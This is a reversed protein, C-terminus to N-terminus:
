GGGWILTDRDRHNVCQTDYLTTDDANAQTSNQSWQQTNILREWGNPVYLINPIEVWLPYGTDNNITWAITVEYIM